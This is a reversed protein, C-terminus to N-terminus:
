KTSQFSTKEVLLGARKRLAHVRDLQNPRSKLCIEYDSAIERLLDTQEGCCGIAKELDALAREWQSLRTYIRARNLYARPDDPDGRLAESWAELGATYRRLAVLAAGRAGATYPTGGRRRAHEFDELAEAAKGLRLNLYGRTELLRPDGGDLVLGRQVDEASGQIDGAEARIEARILFAKPFSPAASVARDAEAAAARGEGLTSLIIARNLISLMHESAPGAERRLKEAAVRLDTELSRGGSPLLRLDQTRELRLEEVRGTALLMRMLLRQRTPNPIPDLRVASQADDLAEEPRGLALRAEARLACPDADEPKAPAKLLGSLETEAEAPRGTRLLVLARGVRASRDSPHEGILEDYLALAKEPAGADYELYALNLRAASGYSSRPGAGTLVVQYDARADPWDGLAQHALGLNLRVAARDSEPAVQSAVTLDELVREWAGLRRHLGARAMRAWFLEPEVSVAMNAHDMAKAVNGAEEYQFALYYHYWYDRPDLRAARELSNIALDPRGQLAFLVSWQFCGRPSSDIASDGSWFSRAPAKKQSRAECWDSLARWPSLPQAFRIGQRCVELAAARSKPTDLKELAVAWLFMLDNVEEILRTRRADDLLDIGDLKNWSEPNKRVYFLDLIDAVPESPDTSPGILGLLRLRMPVARRFLEDAKDRTKRRELNLLYQARATSRLDALEANSNGAGLKEATGFSEDALDLRDHEVQQKGLAVLRRMEGALRESIRVRELQVVFVGLLIALPALLIALDVALRVRNRRLWRLSRSPFPERAYRLPADDAVAQLDSALQGASAYRDDPNAALCRTVVAEFETTVDAVADKLRPVGARRQEAARLLTDTVSPSGKPVSFPRSAMAEYLIVGLSYIDSRADVDGPVGDALGELQEPAMYALTGGLTGPELHPDDIRTEWALNFDLLLPMGDSTVLVNSPKIDRHLVGREHAHQLAEALRAGWWAVARVYSRAALAGRGASHGSAVEHEPQLRDLVQLLGAGSRNSSRNIAALIRALTVGGLYPMCLLHLGTAPDIRYSHVPVIHTHQLRALTQPERTGVRAVKLAVSRDALQREQARFVRAFAGRGLEHVLYFGAITQGVDPLPVDSYTAAARLATTQGSGVLGHIEFIRSLREALEPFRELFESHDPSEGAEEALCFEEYVMAVLTDTDLDRYRERYHEVTLKDGIERHLAMDARLLALQAGPISPADAPVYSLPDPRSGAVAARWEGEFQRVVRVAAPASADEWTRGSASLSM